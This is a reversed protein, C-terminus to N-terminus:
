RRSGKGHRKHKRHRKPCKARLAPKSEYTKGNQAVLNAQAKHTGKCLNTSNIFLGKRGGQMEVIAKSVPADPAGEVTARLGGGKSDIRVVVDIDVLGHLAFVADPLNHSSSRLYVPGSLPEALLPSYATVQGYVSAPPCQEGNGAGAAFQVRTCITGFHGQEIFESHPFLLALRSLNADGPRPTYTANLAPFKGRKTGGKLKLALKPKFGLSACGAAQYRSSLTIPTQALPQLATGDGWITSEAQFPECSTANLTFEPRDASVRLDRLNLPIGKLIHPIPDSAAGDVEARATVPNLRLAERVVVTGADFPGAVAPTIAVVSLPDGHWAGALYLRGKVYTLQNGVGAGGVTTGIQSAAPCSPANLEEQGGHAGQRSQALAIGAEPCYPIGALKGVVGPPLIFSFKGMDQEGDQRTLRMVFPSYSGAQNGLTGAEFGPHFPAPGSPCAGGTVGHDVAFTAETKEVVEGSTSDNPDQASWPVFKAVTHFSGCGPPTILPSRGGERFHFNFSTFPLQPVDDAISVLQGTAPDPRVEIPQKILIGRAPIKAVLYLGILSNTENDYPTAQYVAGEAEEELLPTSIQVSGIKSAEPCGEGLKSDYSEAAYQAKSCVALGEAISPNVTVGKPFIVEARKFQAESIAGEKPNELGSNPMDISLDLGSPNSALKSTLANSVEPDFPEQNCSRLPPSENSDPFVATGIPTNWPEFAVDWPLASACSVPMRLFPTENRDSSKPPKCEGPIENAGSRHYVCKWGRSADHAPSGPDGWLTTTSALFEIIQTINRVEAIARYSDAPDISTDILVPDGGVMLGFRAPEGRGPVLNFVPVAIRRLGIVGKDLVTVSSAGVAADDPCENTLAPTQRLFTAMDCTPVATVNAILGAPLTFTLNRPLAPQVIRTAPSRNSGSQPGSNAVITTTLQFPHSGAATAEEAGESSVSAGGEAEARLSFSELGFPVPEASVHLTQARSVPLAGGGSASVECEGPGACEGPSGAGDKLAVLTEVEIAEYPQLEGEFACDVQSTSPLACHLSETEDNAGYVAQIGYAQAGPPLSDHIALTNSAADAAANGLNTLTLTLLGSGESTIRSSAKGLTFDQGAIPNHVVVPTVAIPAAVWRGTTTVTFPSGGAPGGTVEVGAGYPGEELLHAFQPVTETAPFGTQEMCVKSASQFFYEGAGLCGIVEGGVEIRAVLAEGFNFGPFSLNSKESMVEQVESQDPAPQLNTPRSSTLLQWWPAPAAQAPTSLLFAGAGVAVVSAAASVARHQTRLRTLLAAVGGGQTRAESPGASAMAAGTTVSDGGSDQSLILRPSASVFRPFSAIRSAFRSLSAM